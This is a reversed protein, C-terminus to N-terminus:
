RHHPKEDQRLSQAGQKELRAKDQPSTGMRFPGAHVPLMQPLIVQLGSDPTFRPEGVAGLALGLSRRLTPKLVPPNTEFIELMQGPLSGRLARLCM